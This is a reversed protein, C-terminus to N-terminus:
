RVVHASFYRARESAVQKTQSTCLEQPLWLKWQAFGSYGTSSAVQTHEILLEETQIDITQWRTVRTILPGVKDGLLRSGFRSNAM